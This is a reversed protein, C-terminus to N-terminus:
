GAKGMATLVASPVQEEVATVRSCARQPLSRAFYFIKFSFYFILILIEIVERGFDKSDDAKRALSYAEDIFLMGGSVAEFVGIVICLAGIFVGLEYGFLQDEFLQAPVACLRLM